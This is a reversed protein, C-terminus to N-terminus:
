PRFLLLATLVMGSNMSHDFCPKASKAFFFVFPRLGQPGAGAYLTTDGGSPDAM